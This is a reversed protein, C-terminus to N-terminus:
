RTRSEDVLSALVDVLTHLGVDGQLHFCNLVLISVTVIDLVRVERGEIVRAYAVLDDFPIRVLFLGYSPWASIFM